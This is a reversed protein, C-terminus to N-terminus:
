SELHCEYISVPDKLPDRAQRVKLWEADNWRYASHDWVISASKPPVEAYFAFPDAKQMALGHKPQIEYKYVGGVGLGPVFLAWVGSDGLHRMPHRRGDWFNFDGVLHVAKANPAWVAFHAGSVGGESAPHAGLKEYLRQHSGEGFLHLDFETVFREGEKTKKM